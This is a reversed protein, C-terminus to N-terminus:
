PFNRSVMVASSFYSIGGIALLNNSRAGFAVKTSPLVAPSCSPV